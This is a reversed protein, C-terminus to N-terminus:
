FANWKRICECLNSVLSELDLRGEIDGKTIHPSVSIALELKSLSGIIPKLYGVCGKSPWMQEFQGPDNSVSKQTIANLANATLYNEIEKGGTAFFSGGVSEVENKLQKVFKKEGGQPGRKDSDALVFLNTNIKWLDARTGDNNSIGAGLRRILAGGYFAVQYHRGEIWSRDGFLSIWRNVYIRDSPGEVWIVGNAQLIDSAKNGLQDIIRLQDLPTDIMKTVSTSGDNEVLTISASHSQACFDLVINSHTTLFIPTNKTVAHNELFGLLRRLVAPHLNNEPEEFAFVYENATNKKGKKSDQSCLSKAIKPIAILNLLILLITKFGSGSASLPIGTDDGKKWLYVELTEAESSENFSEKTSIQSFQGDPGYIENLASLVNVKIINEDGGVDNLCYQVFRTAGAGDKQIFEELDLRKSEKKIDRDAAVLGFMRGNLSHTVHTQLAHLMREQADRQQEGSAKTRWDFNDLSELYDGQIHWALRQGQFIEHLTRNLVRDSRHQIIGEEKPFHINMFAQDCIAELRIPWPLAQLHEAEALGRILELLASKGVNNRGVILNLHAIEDFGGWKNCDSANFCQYKFRVTTAKM